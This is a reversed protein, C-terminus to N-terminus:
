SGNWRPKRAASVEKSAASFEHKKTAAGTVWDIQSGDYSMGNATNYAIDNQHFKSEWYIYDAIFAAPDALVDDQTYEKVFRCPPSDSSAEALALICLLAPTASLLM